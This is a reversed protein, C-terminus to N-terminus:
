QLMQSLRRDIEFVLGYMVNYVESEYGLYYDIEAIISHEGHAIGNRRAVLTKIKMKDTLIKSSDLDADFLLAELVDPWLNSNTEVDPFTPQCGMQVLNFHSMFDVLESDPLRRAAKIEPRLSVNRLAVPLRDRTKIKKRLSEYYVTLSFKIFGEYHAYLLAWAARLITEKQTSTLDNRSLIIRLTSLETERWDLDRTIQELYEIKM